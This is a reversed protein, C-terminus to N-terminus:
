NGNAQLSLTLRERESLSTGDASRIGFREGNVEYAVYTIGDKESVDIIEAETLGINITQFDGKNLKEKIKEAFHEQVSTRNICGQICDYVVGAVGIVTATAVGAGIVIAAIKLLPLALIPLM